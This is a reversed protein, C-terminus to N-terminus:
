SMLQTQPQQLALHNRMATNLIVLLRRMCAVLAVMRPKGRKLMQLYAQKITPNSRLAAVTAMYLITRVAARGARISRPKDSLGTQNDFPAVGVLSAIKRRSITGLEPLKGLIMMTLVAGVGKEARLVAAKLSLEPCASIHAEITTDLKTLEQRMVKIIRAISKVTLPSTRPMQLRNKEATIMQTLQLRRDLLPQLAKVAPTPELTLPLQVREGYQRLMRADIADTKAELGLSAAFAKTRRPNVRSVPIKAGWLAEVLPHEYGGTSEVVVRCRNEGSGANLTRVLSGIGKATNAVQWQAQASDVVLTAKSVDVGIVASNSREM